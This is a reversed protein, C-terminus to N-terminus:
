NCSSVSCCGHGTQLPRYYFRDNTLNGMEILQATEAVSNSLEAVVLQDLRSPLHKISRTLITLWNHPKTQLSVTCQQGCIDVDLGASTVNCTQQWLTCTVNCTQQWLTCIRRWNKRANDDTSHWRWSTEASTSTATSDVSRCQALAATEHRLCTKM